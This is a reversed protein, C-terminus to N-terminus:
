LEKECLEILVGNTAQPHVFAIQHGGAGPRPAKDILRVGKQDLDALLNKLDQVRLAIHHIGPGRKALFKSIVSECHTAELLEIQVKNDLPLCAVRVKESPVDEILPKLGLFSYFHLAESLSKVAIGIHDIEFGTIDSLPKLFDQDTLNKHLHM